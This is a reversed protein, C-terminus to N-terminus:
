TEHAAVNKMAEDIINTLAQSEDFCSSLYGSNDGRIRLNNAKILLGEIFGTADTALRESQQLQLLASLM